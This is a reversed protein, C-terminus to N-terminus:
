IYTFKSIKPIRLKGSSANQPAYGAFPSNFPMGAYSPHPYNYYNSLQSPTIDTPLSSPLNYEGSGGLSYPFAKFNKKLTQFHVNKSIKWCNTSRRKNTSWDPWNCLPVTRASGSLYRRLLALPNIVSFNTLFERKKM